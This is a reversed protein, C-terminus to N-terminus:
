KKKMVTRIKKQGAIKREHTGNTYPNLDELQENYIPWSGKRDAITNGKKPPTWYNVLGIKHGEPLPVWLGENEEKM